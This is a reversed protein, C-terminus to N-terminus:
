RRKLIEKLEEIDKMTTKYFEDTKKDEGKLKKFEEDFKKMRAILADLDPIDKDYQKRGSKEYWGAHIM